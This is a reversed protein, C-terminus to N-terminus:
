KIKMELENNKQKLFEVEKQLQETKKNQEIMYLTLEEIKELLKVNMEGLQIGDKQVQKASPINPLHGKEAIHNEVEKLSALKYEEEFVYDPWGSLDIKVEKAHIKGNVALKADPTTTGIGVNGNDSIRMKESLTNYGNWTNFVINSYDSPGSGSKRTKVGISAAHIGSTAYTNYFKLEGVYQDATNISGSVSLNGNISLKDRPTSTGIGVNGNDSIRMKESLTNYGNWTNFVINSYDWPGSGSKRTKVGISAAHIGSTAHTNYFKLEGIYQDTTNKSDSISLDGHISLKENPNTTGIGVNGSSPFTNTNQGMSLTSIFVAAISFFLKIKM